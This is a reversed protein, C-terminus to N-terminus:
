VADRIARTLWEVLTRFRPCRIAVKNSDIKALLQSAHRIKAYEGKTKTKATARKLGDILAAKPEDELNQRIPICREQFGQGYFAVLTAPDSAIWTEMCQVMLHVHEPEIESLDWSDRQELHRVRAQADAKVNSKNEGAIPGESDVLLVFLTEGNSQKLDRRLADYTQKRSGCLVSTWGLNKSQAAQKQQHLLADFGIRLERKNHASGKGDGGGEVYLAIRM